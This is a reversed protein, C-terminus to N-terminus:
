VIFDYIMLCFVCLSALPACNHMDRCQEVLQECLRTWALGTATGVDGSPAQFRTGLVLMRFWHEHEATSDFRM